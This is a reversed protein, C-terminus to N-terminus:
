RAAREFQLAAAAEDMETELEKLAADAKGELFQSVEDVARLYDARAIMSACPGSCLGMHYDLCLKQRDGEEIRRGCGRLHFVQKILKLAQRMAWSSTYPGFYRNGDKKARRVIIPRPFPEDMTLCIYPYQKDDRLRVNFHPRHRKILTSELLLAEVPTSTIVTEVERVRDVMLRTRLSHGGGEQVYARVRSRLSAAKGVYLIRGEADKFLYCGPRDPLRKLQEQLTVEPM